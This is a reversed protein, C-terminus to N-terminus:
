WRLGSRVVGFDRDPQVHLLSRLWAHVRWQGRHPLRTGYFELASTVLGHGRM